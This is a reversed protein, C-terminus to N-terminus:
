NPYTMQSTAEQDLNKQPSVERNTSPQRFSSQNDSRESRKDENLGRRSASMGANVLTSRKSPDKKSLLNRKPAIGPTRSPQQDEDDMIDDLDYGASSHKAGLRKPNKPPLSSNGM